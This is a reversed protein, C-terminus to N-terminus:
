RRAGSLPFPTRFRNWRTSCRSSTPFETFSDWAIALDFTGVDRFLEPDRIDATEFRVNKIGLATATSRAFDTKSKRHDVGWVEEATQAM